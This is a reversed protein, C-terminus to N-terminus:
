PRSTHVDKSCSTFDITNLEDKEEKAKQFTLELAMIPNPRGDLYADNITPPYGHHEVSLHGVM